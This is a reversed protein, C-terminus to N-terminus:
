PDTSPPAVVRRPTTPIARISSVDITPMAVNLVQLVGNALENYRDFDRRLRTRWAPL